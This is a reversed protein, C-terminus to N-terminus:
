GVGRMLPDGGDIVHHQELHFGPPLAARYKGLFSALVVSVTIEDLDAHSQGAPQVRDQLLQHGPGQVVAVLVRFNVLRFSYFLIVFTIVFAVYLFAYLVAYAKQGEERNVKAETEAQAKKRIAREHDEVWEKLDKLEQEIRAIRREQEDHYDTM